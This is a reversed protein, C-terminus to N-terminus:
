NELPITEIEIHVTVEENEAVNEGDYTALYEVYYEINPDIRMYEKQPVLNGNLDKVFMDKFTYVNGDAKAAFGLFLDCFPDSVPAMPRVILIVKLDDRAEHTKADIASASLKLKDGGFKRATGINSGTFTVDGAYYDRDSYSDVAEYRHSYAVKDLDWKVGASDTIGTIESFQDFNWNAPLKFGMNGSYGTSLDSVYCTVAYGAEMVQTCVNRTGYVGIRYDVLNESLKKFYPIIVSSIDPDQADYDVAFYIISNKPILHYRARKNAEIADTVGYAETFHSLSPTGNKQYIPILKIGNALLTKIEEYYLEKQDTGGNIYRGLISINNDKLYQIRNNKTMTYITDGAECSRNPNGTSLILSMWTDVDVKGTVSLRYDNQFSKVVNEFNTNWDTDLSFGSYGNCRLAYKALKFAEQHISNDSSPIIINQLANVTGPGWSGDVNSGTFGEAVQIAKKLAINVERGYVGDCPILGIYQEYENNLRQQITRIEVTGGYMITLKFQTMSLLAKMVNLTVSSDTNSCGADSKLNKIANGTGGYFHKTIDGAGTSYGKCWCAGQIIGYINDEAEDNDNQQQVGNPFRQNFKETTTPGFNNSTATIGLEIQLAKLLGYITEWGTYGDEDIEDYGEKGKYNLNLWQQTKLVMLDSM